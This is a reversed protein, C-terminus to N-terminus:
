SNHKSVANDSLCLFRREQPQTIYLIETKAGAAKTDSMATQLANLLLSNLSM